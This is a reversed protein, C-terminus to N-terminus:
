EAIIEPNAVTAVFGGFSAWNVKLEKVPHPVPPLNHTDLRHTARQQPARQDVVGYQRHPKQDKDQCMVPDIQKVASPEVKGDLLEVHQVVRPHRNELDADDKEVQDRVDGQIKGPPRYLHHVRARV